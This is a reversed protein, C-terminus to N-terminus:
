RSRMLREVLPDGIRGPHSRLSASNWSRCLSTNSCSNLVRRIAATAATAVNATAPPAPVTSASGPPHNPEFSLAQGYLWGPGDGTSAVTPSTEHWGPAGSPVSFAVSTQVPPAVAVVRLRRLVRGGLLDLRHM